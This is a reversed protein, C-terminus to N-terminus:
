LKDGMDLLHGELTRRLKDQQEFLSMSVKHLRWGTNILIASTIMNLVLVVDFLIKGWTM